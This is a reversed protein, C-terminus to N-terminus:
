VGKGFNQLLIICRNPSGSNSHVLFWFGGGREWSQSCSQLPRPPCTRPSQTSLRRRRSPGAQHLISCVSNGWPGLASRSPLCVSVQSNGPLSCFTRKAACVCLVSLILHYSIGQRFRIGCKEAATNTLKKQRPSKAGRPPSYNIAAAKQLPSLKQSFFLLGCFFSSLPSPFPLVAARRPKSISCRGDNLPIPDRRRSEREREAGPPRRLSFAFFRAHM